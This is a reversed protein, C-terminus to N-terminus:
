IISSDLYYFLVLFQSIVLKLTMLLIIHFCEFDKTNFVIVGYINPNKGLIFVSLIRQALFKTSYVCDNNYSLNRFNYVLVNKLCKHIICNCLERFISFISCFYTPTCTVLLACNGGCLSSNANKPFFNKM